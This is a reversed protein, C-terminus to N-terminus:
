IGCLLSIMHCKDKKTQNIESLMIGQLDMWTPVFPLIENKNIALYYEMAHTYVHTHTHIHIYIKVCM